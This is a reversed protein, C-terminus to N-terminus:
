KWEPISFLVILKLKYLENIGYDISKLNRYHTGVHNNIFFFLIFHLLHICMSKVRLSITIKSCLTNVGKLAFM